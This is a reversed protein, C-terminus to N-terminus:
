EKKKEILGKTQKAFENRPNLILAYDNHKEANQLDGIMYYTRGLYADANEAEPYFEKCKKLLEIKEDIHKRSDLIYALLYFDFEPPVIELRIKQSLQKYHEIFLETTKEPNSEPITFHWSKYIFFLADAILVPFITHHTDSTKISSQFLFTGKDIKNLAEILKINDEYFYDKQSAGLFLERNSKQLLTITEENNLQNKFYESNTPATCFYSQFPSDNSFLNHLVFEGDSSHGILSKYSTQRYKSEVFPIVERVIFKRYNEFNNRPATSLGIIITEPITHLQNLDLIQYTKSLYENMSYYLRTRSYGGLVVQLPYNDKSNYYDPPLYINIIEGENLYKSQITDLFVFEHNIEQCFSNIQITTLLLFLIKKM